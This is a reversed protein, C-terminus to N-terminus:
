RAANWVGHVDCPLWLRDSNLVTHPRSCCFTRANLRLHSYMVTSYCYRVAVVVIDTSRITLGFHVSAADCAAGQHTHRNGVPCVSPCDSPRWVTVYRKGSSAALTIICDVISSLTHWDHPIPVEYGSVEGPQWTVIWQMLSAGLRRGDSGVHFIDVREDAAYPGPYILKTAIEPSVCDVSTVRCHRQPGLQNRALSSSPRLVTRNNRDNSVKLVKSSFVLRKVNKIRLVNKRKGIESIKIEAAM